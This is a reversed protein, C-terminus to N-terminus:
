DIFTLRSNSARTLKQKLKGNADKYEIRIVKDEENLIEIVTFPCSEKRSLQYTGRSGIEVFAFNLDVSNQASETM